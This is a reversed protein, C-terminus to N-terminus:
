ETASDTRGWSSAILLICSGELINEVRYISDISYDLDVNFEKGTEVALEAIDKQVAKLKPDTEIM